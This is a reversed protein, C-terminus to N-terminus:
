FTKSLSAYFFRQRIDGQTLDYGSSFGVSAFPPASNFLNVVGGRLVVGSFIGRRSARGIDFALNLDMIFPPEITRGSPNGLADVDDYSSTYRGTIGLSVPGNAWNLSATSRWRPISGTLQSGALGVRSISASGPLDASRYRDIWTAQVAPTFIGVATELSASAEFDIGDVLLRGANLNSTDVASIQGPRGVAIDAPTPDTRIVREPFLAENALISAANATVIRFNQKIRWYTMAVRPRWSVAPAFVFGMTISNADEPELEPNGGLRLSVPTVQNGRRIDVVTSPFISAPQYLQFLSPAIFSTGYSGRLLLPSVPRWQVGFQPNFTSGFDDYSDYRGAVTLALEDFMTINAGPSILPVMGEFYASWSERKADLVVTPRSEFHIQERRAEAGVAFEVSGAPLSFLSGRMQASIQDAASAFTNVIPAAVLSRLFNLDGGPGDQFVNFTQGPATAALAATVRTNDLEGITRSNGGERIRLGAIEWDLSGIRGQLGAIARLSNVKAITERPGLASLLFNARVPVGFPNFPNSAPIVRNALSPPSSRIINERDTYFLEVFASLNDTPRFRIFGTAGSRRSQPVLSGYRALSELNAQGATSVFDLPTLGIGGSGAPVAATTSPLGPLNATTTSAINGPNATLSRSDTGGFRRFDQNASYRRGDGLLFDREFHDLIVSFDVADSSHGFAVSVRREDAGGEAGGGHVSVVPNSVNSRLVINIVGGVADAGYIASASTSLVEIREVASIPISNLDFYNQSGTLASTVTRRGNILVLTSGIGLGRLRVTRAGAANVRDESAITQQPLYNLVDGVSSAGIQDLRERTIITVPAPGDRGANRLRSGVVVIERTDAQMPLSSDPEPNTIGSLAGMGEGPIREIVIAGSSNLRYRLGSGRLVRALAEEVTMQGRVAPARLGRTLEASFYIERNAQRALETLATGLDRAQVNYSTQGGAQAHVVAPVVAFAACAALLITRFKRNSGSM